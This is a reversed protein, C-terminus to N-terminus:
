LRLWRVPAQCHPPGGEYVLASLMKNFTTDVRSVLHRTRSACSTASPWSQKQCCNRYKPSPRLSGRLVATRISLTGGPQAAYKASSRLHAPLSAAALAAVPTGQKVSTSACLHLCRSHPAFSATQLHMCSAFVRDDSGAGHRTPARLEYSRRVTSTKLNTGLLSCEVYVSEHSQHILRQSRSAHRTPTARLNWVGTNGGLHARTPITYDIIDYSLKVAICPM